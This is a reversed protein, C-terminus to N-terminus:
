RRRKRVVVVTILFTKKPAKRPGNWSSRLDVNIQRLKRKWQTHHMILCQPRVHCWRCCCCCLSYIRALGLFKGKSNSLTYCCWRYYMKRIYRYIHPTHSPWLRIQDRRDRKIHLIGGSSAYPIPLSADPRRRGPKMHGLLWLHRFFNSTFDRRRHSSEGWSEAKWNWASTSWRELCPQVGSWRAAKFPLWFHASLRTRYPASVSALVETIIFHVVKLLLLEIM